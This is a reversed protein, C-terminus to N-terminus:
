KTFGNEQEKGIGMIKKNKGVIKFKGKDLKKIMEYKSFETLNNKGIVFYRYDDEKLVLLTSVDYNGRRLKQCLVLIQYESIGKEKFLAKSLASLYVCLEIGDLKSNAAVQRIFDLADFIKEEYNPESRKIAMYEEELTNLRNTITDVRYSLERDVEQLAETIDKDRELCVFGGTSLGIQIRALDTMILDDDQSTTVNTADAKIMTGDCNFTVYKHLGKGSVVAKIKVANLLASYLEAWNKCIVTNDKLSIKSIDKDYISKARKSSNIDQELGIFSSDYRVLKALEIYIARAVFFPERTTDVNELVRKFLDSDIQPKDVEYGDLDFFRKLQLSYKKRIESARSEELNGLALGTGSYYNLLNYLKDLYNILDFEFTDRNNDFDMFKNFTDEDELIAELVSVTILPETKSLYEEFDYRRPLGYISNIYNVRDFDDKILDESHITAYEMYENIAKAYSLKRKGMFPDASKIFSVFFDGDKIIKELIDLPILELTIEDNKAATM